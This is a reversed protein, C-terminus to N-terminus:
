VSARAAKAKLENVKQKHFCDKCKTVRDWESDLTGRVLQGCLTKIESGPIWIHRIGDRM